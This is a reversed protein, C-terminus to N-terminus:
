KIEKKMGNRWWWLDKGAPFDELPHLEPIPVCYANSYIEYSSDMPFPDTIDTGKYWGTIYVIVHHNRIHNYDSHYNEEINTVTQLFFHFYYQKHWYIAHPYSESLVGASKYRGRGWEGDRNLLGDPKQRIDEKRTAYYRTGKWDVQFGPIDSGKDGLWPYTNAFERSMNFMKLGGVRGYWMMNGVLNGFGGVIGDRLIRDYDRKFGFINSKGSVLKDKDNKAEQTKKWQQATIYAHHYVWKFEHPYLHFPYYYSLDWYSKWDWDQM